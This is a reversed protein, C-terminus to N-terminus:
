FGLNAQGPDPRNMVPSMSCKKQLRADNQPWRRGTIIKEAVKRHHGVIIGSLSSFYEEGCPGVGVISCFVPVANEGGVM